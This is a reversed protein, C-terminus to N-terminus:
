GESEENPLELKKTLQALKEPSSVNNKIHDVVEKRLDALENPSESLEIGVGTILPLAQQIEELEEQSDISEIYRVFEEKLKEFGSM